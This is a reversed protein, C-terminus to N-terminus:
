PSHGVVGRAALGARSLSAAQAATVLLLPRLMQRGTGLAWAPRHLLRPPQVGSHPPLAQPRHMQLVRVRRGPALVQHMYAQLAGPLLSAARALGAM